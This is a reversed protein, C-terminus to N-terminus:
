PALPDRFPEHRKAQYIVINEAVREVYNRTEGFPIREIWDIMATESPDGRPDGNAALWAAVNSPGGNYAALALPLAGDFRGLLAALYASGLRINLSADRTLDGSVLALGLTHAVQRATAPLLQMLGLAGSPSVAAIDFSSEQRILGLVTAPPVPRPPVDVALPWGAEPLMAGDRGARRAIAVAVDPLGFSLGLRAALARYRPEPARTALDTLFPRARNAAGLAVLLNAARALDRRAFDQAELPTSTPDRLARIRGALRAPSWGLVLAARQGYFTVPWDAARRYEARAGARDGEATATRALWYHARAQTIVAPSLAALAQFHPAARAPDHLATLAIFGALFTGEVRTVPALEGAGALGGAIVAYAQAPDGGALIQRALNEREALFLAAREGAGETAAVGSAHWLAAADALRGARRLWRATEFFVLPWARTAAPLAALLDGAEPRDAHLALAARAAAQQAPTMEPLARAAATANRPLLRAFREWTAAPTLAAPWRAVLIAEAAPDDIGGSWALGAARAAAATDGIAAAANACRLWAEPLVPPARLCFAAAARDDALAILAEDQRRALLDQQPWDPNAAIFDAIDGASAAGPALLRYYTVLKAAIPDAIAAALAAARPWDNGRIAAIVDNAPTNAPSQACVPPAFVLPLLLLLPLVTRRHSMGGRYRPAAKRRIGRRDYIIPRTEGGTPHSTM